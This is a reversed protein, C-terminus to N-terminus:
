VGGCRCGRAMLDDRDCTCKRPGGLQPNAGFWKQLAGMIGRADAETLNITMDVVNVGNVVRPRIDIALGDMDLLGGQGFTM